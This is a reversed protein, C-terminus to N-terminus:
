KSQKKKYQYESGLAHCADEIIFFNYKKKLDYFVKPNNQYGRTVNAGKIVIEGIKNPGLIKGDSTLIEVEPGSPLGVSGPKRKLPPLPNSTMQHAAETM